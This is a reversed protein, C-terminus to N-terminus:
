AEDAGEEGVRHTERIAEEDVSGPEAHELALRYIRLAREPDVHAPAAAFDPNYEDGWGVYAWIDDPFRETLRRYVADGAEPDGM